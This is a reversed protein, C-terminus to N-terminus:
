GFRGASTAEIIGLLAQRLEANDEAKPFLDAELTRAKQWAKDGAPTRTVVHRRGDSPHKKRAVYGERELRELTRSMTQVEVRARYALERQSLPGAELLHLAILGAHTLGLKELGEIWAHEVLRAATSLLRGTPWSAM